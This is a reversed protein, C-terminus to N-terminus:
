AMRARGIQFASGRSCTEPLLILSSDVRAGGPRESPVREGKPPRRVAGLPCSSRAARLTLWHVFAPVISARHLAAQEDGTEGAGHRKRKRM